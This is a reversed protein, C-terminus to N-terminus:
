PEVPSKFAAAATNGNKFNTRARNHGVGDQEADRTNYSPVLHLIEVQQEIAYLPCRALFGRRLLIVRRRPHSYNGGGAVGGYDPGAATYDGYIKKRSGRGYSYIVEYKQSVFSEKFPCDEM